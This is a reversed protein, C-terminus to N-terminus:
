EPKAARYIEAEKIEDLNRCGSLRATLEFDNWINQIVEEVGKQKGIALGYVYPRGLLVADAGLALAKFIDSGNRIGSDLLIKYPRPVAKRIEQLAEISAIAGDVQRGGHNSVIIGDAGSEKAKRADAPHLIGKIIVPLRTQSKLWAIREWNLSPNTYIRTFLKAAKLGQRLRGKYRLGLKLVHWMTHLTFSPKVADEHTDAEWGNQLYEQFVPDSTYQAIGFGHLFPLYGRTLDRARWGLMPTDVTLVIAKCGCNEARKVFSLVLDDSKSWYLQFWKDTNGMIRSCSEMSNGAQNSFIFPTGMAHCAASVMLDARPYIMDLAGIPALLLPFSLSTGFLVSSYDAASNDRMMRPIIAIADFAKRNRTMTAEDSAGGDVYAWANPSMKKRAKERLASAHFPIRSTKGSFGRIYIERQREFASKSKM